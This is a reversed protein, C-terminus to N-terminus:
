GQELRPIAPEDAEAQGSSLTVLPRHAQEDTEDAQGNKQLKARIKTIEGQPYRFWATSWVRHFHWGMRELVQQRLRDRDRATRAMYYPDGDCELALMYRDRNEPDVLAFDIRVKGTGIDSEVIFGLQELADAVVKEFQSQERQTREQREPFDLAASTGAPAARGSRAAFTLYRSLATVGLSDSQGIDDGTINSFIECRQKARSILVNLRREGGSKNLPGFNQRVRGDATRGYGISIFIVDREDGQVNELNKIFFPEFPHATTFFPELDVHQGRLIEMEERIAREQARSFAVIGLSLAPRDAAHKLAAAAVAQAEGRNIREKGRDYVTEPLHHFRLGLRDSVRNPSPFVVLQGDYFERNSTAILDQHQSRYHWNLMRQPAGRALFLDLISQTDAPSFDDGTASNDDPGPEESRFFATPPLQKNDGVVIARGGRLLAGLGDEPRVQSAEDFVVLDFRVAQPDLYMAISLPSMMFVPKIAQIAQGAELIIRRIPKHRRKKRFEQLLLGVQGAGQDKQPLNKWHRWAIQFRNNRFQELDLQRFRDIHSQHVTHDFRALTPREHEAIELLSEYWTRQLLPVMLDPADEWNYSLRVIQSLGKEILGTYMHNLSIIQDIQDIEREWLMWLAKQTALPENLFRGNEEFRAKESFRLHDFIHTIKVKYRALLDSLNRQNEEFHDPERQWIQLLDFFIAPRRGADVEAHITQIAKTIRHLRDWDSKEAQFASGFLGSIVHRDAAYNRRIQQEELIADVLELRAAPAEPLEGKTLGRLKNVAQRLASNLLNWRKEGHVALAERVELLEQDWAQPILQQDYRQHLAYFRATRDIKNPLDPDRWVPDSPDAGGEIKIQNFLRILAGSHSELAELDKWHSLDFNLQDALPRAIQEIKELLEFGSRYDDQLERKQQLSLTDATVGWYPHRSPIGVSKLKHQLDRTATLMDEYAAPTWNRIDSLRLNSQGRLAEPPNLTLLAGYLDYPSLGSRGVPTHLETRYRNLRDIELSLAAEHEFDGRFEPQGLNMTRELEALFPKRRTKHSHLELCADGVGVQDLRRKVVELAAMKESVFLVTEGRGVAEAIVNTITQSKGTGPPGQVVLNRGSAVDLLVTAQSADADVVQYSNRPTLREDLLRNEATEPAVPRDSEGNHGQKSQQSSFGSVLLAEILHQGAPDASWRELNLDNYMLFTGFSFFDVAMGHSEVRWEPKHAIAARVAQFYSAPDFPHENGDADTEGEFSPLPLDVGVERLKQRLSLNGGLEEESYRITFTARVDQRRMELPILLLPAIRTQSPDGPDIWHLMGLALFLINVGQEEIYTRALHDTNLLRKQLRVPQHSTQLRSDRHRAAIQSTKPKDEKPLKDTTDVEIVPVPFTAEGDEADEDFSEPAPLFTLQRGRHVLHSYTPTAREDVIKLGRASRLKYNLLPNRLSLDLLEQRAHNLRQKLSDM